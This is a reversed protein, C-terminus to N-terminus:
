NKDHLEINKLHRILNLIVNSMSDQDKFSFYIIGGWDSPIKTGQEVILITKNFGLKASFYGVEFVVNDRPAATITGDEKEILDDKTILFIAFNSQRSIRDIESFLINGAVFDWNWDFLNLNSLHHQINEKIILAIGKSKGCYGIFGNLNSANHKIPNLRIQEFTNNEFTELLSSLAIISLATDEYDEFCGNKSQQHEYWNVISILDINLLKNRLRSYKSIAYISYSNSFIYSSWLYQSDFKKNQFWSYAEDSVELLQKMAITLPYNSEILEASLWILFSSYHTTLYKGDETKPFSCIWILTKDIWKNERLRSNELSNEYRVIAILALTTEWVEEYWSNTQDCKQSQLWNIALNVRESYKEDGSLALISYATDWTESNWSLGREERRAQGSLWSKSNKQIEHVLALSEKSINQENITEGFAFLVLATSRVDEWNGQSSSKNVLYNVAKSLISRLKYEM